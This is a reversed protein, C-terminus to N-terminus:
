VDPLPGEERHGFVAGRWCGTDSLLRDPISPSHHGCLYSVHPLLHAESGSITKWSRRPQTACALSLASSFQHHLISISAASTHALSRWANLSAAARASRRASCPPTKIICSPTARRVTSLPFSLQRPDELHIALPRAPATSTCASLLDERELRPRHTSPGTPASPQALLPQPNHPTYRLRHTSLTHPCTRSHTKERHHPHPLLMILRVYAPARWAEQQERQSSEELM